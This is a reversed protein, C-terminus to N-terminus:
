FLIGTCSNRKLKQQLDIRATEAVTLFDANDFRWPTAMSCSKYIAWRHILKMSDIMADTAAAIRNDSAQQAEHMDPGRGDGDGVLGSMTKAGLDRDADGAMWSKWCDLCIELGDQQKIYNIKADEKRFRTLM